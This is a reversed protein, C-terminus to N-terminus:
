HGPCSSETGGGASMTAAQASGMSLGPLAPAAPPHKIIQNHKM